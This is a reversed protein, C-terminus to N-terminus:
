SIEDGSLKELQRKGGRTEGVRTEEGGIVSCGGLFFMARMKATDGWKTERVDRETEIERDRVRQQTEDREEEKDRCM